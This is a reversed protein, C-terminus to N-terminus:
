FPIEEGPAPAPETKKVPWLTFYLVVHNDPLNLAQPNIMHAGKVEYWRLTNIVQERVKRFVWTQVDFGTEPDTQYTIRLQQHPPLNFLRGDSADIDEESHGVYPTLEFKLDSVQYGYGAVSDALVAKVRQELEIPIGSL